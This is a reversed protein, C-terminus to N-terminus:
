LGIDDLHYYVGGDSRITGSTSKLTWGVSFTGSSPAVFEAMGPCRPEFNGLTVIATTVSRFSTGSTTLTGGALYRFQIVYYSGAVTVGVVGGDLLFRYRRGAVLTATVFDCVIETTGTTASAGSRSGSAVRGKPLANMSTSLASAASDVSVFKAEVDLVSNSVQTPGNPSDTLDPIRFGYVPSTHAM